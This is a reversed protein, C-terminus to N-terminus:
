DSIRARLIDMLPGDRSITDAKGQETLHHFRGPPFSPPIEYDMGDWEDERFAYYAWHAGHPEIADLVDTLYTGCDAWRRMCGFEGLVMRRAPIDHQAAWDFALDLHAAVAAADWTLGAGDYTSVIRPYPLPEDRQMNGAATAGYPEYMHIAYLINDDELPGPWTALARPNGFFGADVMVPMDPDVSRIAAIVQNYFAPLDRPTGTQAAQWARHDDLPGNEILDTMREPAPENLINYAVIAPHGTLEAALDRWFAAAQSAFAPDSWLRDDFTGDNHQTWRAGPLTLPTVVVKIGAADAADLVGRLITLDQAPLATYAGADGILFDPGAGAWKSFVLRTWTAGTEALAEFYAQDPPTANFSNAGTQLTTWFDAPKAFGPHAVCALAATVLTATRCLNLQRM